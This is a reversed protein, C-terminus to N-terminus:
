PHLRKGSSLKYISSSYGNRVWKISGLFRVKVVDDIGRAESMLKSSRDKLVSAVLFVSIPLPAESSKGGNKLNEREFKGCQRISKAKGKSGEAKEMASSPEEYLSFLDPDYELSWMM